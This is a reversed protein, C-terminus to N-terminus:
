RLKAISHRSGKDHRSHAHFSTQKVTGMHLSSGSLCSGTLEMAPSRNGCIVQGLKRHKYDEHLFRAAGLLLEHGFSWAYPIMKIIASRKAQYEKWKREPAEDKRWLVVHDRMSKVRPIYSPSGEASRVAEVYM